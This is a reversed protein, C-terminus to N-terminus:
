RPGGPPPTGGAGPPSPDWRLVALSWTSLAETSQFERLTQQRAHKTWIGPWYQQCAPPEEKQTELQLEENGKREGKWETNCRGTLPLCATNYLIRKTSKYHFGLDSYWIEIKKKQRIQTLSWSLLFIEYKVQCTYSFTPKAKCKLVLATKGCVKFPLM